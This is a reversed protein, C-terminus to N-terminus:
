NESALCIATDSAGVLRHEGSHQPILVVVRVGQQKLVTISESVDAIDRFLEREADRRVLDIFEFPCDKHYFVREAEQMLRLAKLSLLEVDEGFEVWTCANTFEPKDTKLAQYAKELQQNNKSGIVEPLKFFLEWFKRRDDVTTYTSKIDNRKSSAFDAM